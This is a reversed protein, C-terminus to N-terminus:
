RTPLLKTLDLKGACGLRVDVNLWGVGVGVFAYEAKNLPTHQLSQDTPWSPLM